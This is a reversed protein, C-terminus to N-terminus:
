RADEPLFTGNEEDVDAQLQKADVYARLWDVSFFARELLDRWDSRIRHRIRPPDAKKRESITTAFVTRSFARLVAKDHRMAAPLDRLFTIVDRDLWPFASLPALSGSGQDLAEFVLDWQVGLDVAGGFIEDAGHGWLLVKSTAAIRAEVIRDLAVFAGPYPEPTAAIRMDDGEFLYAAHRSHETLAFGLRAAGEKARASEEADCIGGYGFTHCTLSEGLSLAAAGIATSDLGGSLALSTGGSRIRRRVARELLHALMGGADISSVHTEAPRGRDTIAIEEIDCDYVLCLAGPAVRRVRSYMTRRRFLGVSGCLFARVSVDDPVYSKQLGATVVLLCTSVLLCGELRAYFLPRRGFCDRAFWGLQTRTNHGAAAFGGYTAFAGRPSVFLDEEVELVAGTVYVGDRALEGGCSAFFFGAGRHMFVSGHLTASLADSLGKLYHESPADCERFYVAVFGRM